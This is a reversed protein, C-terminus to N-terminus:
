EGSFVAIEIQGVTEHYSIASAVDLQADDREANFPRHPTLGRQPFDFEDNTVIEREVAVVHM